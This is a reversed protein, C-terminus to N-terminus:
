IHLQAQTSTGQLHLHIKILDCIVTTLRYHHLFMSLLCYIIFLPGTIPANESSLNSSKHMSKLDKSKLHGVGHNFYQVM